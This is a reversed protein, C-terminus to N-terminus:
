HGLNEPPFPAASDLGKVIDAAEDMLLCVIEFDDRHGLRSLCTWFGIIPLPLNESAPTEIYVAWGPLCLLVDSPVDDELDTDLLSEYLESHFRYQRAM